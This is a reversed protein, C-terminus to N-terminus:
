VLRLDVRWFPLHLPLPLSFSSGDAFTDDVSALIGTLFLLAGFSTDFRRFEFSTMETSKWTSWVNRDRTVVLITGSLISIKEVLRLRLCNILILLRELALLRIVLLVDHNIHIAGDVKVVQITAHISLRHIPNDPHASCRCVLEM